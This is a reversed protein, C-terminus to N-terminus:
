NLLKNRKFDIGKRILLAHYSSPVDHTWKPLFLTILLRDIHSVVGLAVALYFAWGGVGFGIISTFATLLCLGWMKSLFAHSASEKKFKVISTIYCLVEMALVGRVIWIQEMIIEPHIWYAYIGISLWFVMDVQSDMRRMNATQIGLNRAIIGDFIDSVLGLYMLITVLTSVGSGYYYGLGLIVPVLLLRFLIFLYPIKQKM